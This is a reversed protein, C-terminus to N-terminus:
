GHRVRERLKRMMGKRMRQFYPLFDLYDVIRRAEFEVRKERDREYILRGKSLIEYTLIEGARDLIVIDLNKPVLSSLERFYKLELDHLERAAGRSATLVALDLDSEQRARGTAYSGFLYVAIVEPQRSFYDAITKELDM